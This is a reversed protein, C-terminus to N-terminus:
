HEKVFSVVQVKEGVFVKMYYSGTPLKSIDMEFTTREVAVRMKRKGILSYVVIKNIKHAASVHLKDKAPNPYYKFDALRSSNLSLVGGIDLASIADSPYTFAGFTWNAKNNLKAACDIISLGTCNAVGTYRGETVTADRLATVGNVLGTGTLTSGGVYDDGFFALFVGPAARTGTVAVIEDGTLSLSFGGDDETALGVSALIGTGIDSAREIHVVTGQLITSGTNNEWLVEGETSSSAFGSGTWEEDIFRIFTGNPCNDLFVFSFGDDNDHFATIVIDGPDDITSDVIQASCFVSLFLVSFGTSFLRKM